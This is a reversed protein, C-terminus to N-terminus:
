RLDAERKGIATIVKAVLAELVGVERVNLSEIFIGALREHAAQHERIFGMGKPTVHVHYERRDSDSRAKRLFGARGLRALLDTVSPRTVGQRTAIESPTPNGMEAIAELHFMQRSTLGSAEIRELFEEEWGFLVRTLCAMEAKLRGIEAM